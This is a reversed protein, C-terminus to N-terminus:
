WVGPGARGSGLTQIRGELHATAALLMVEARDTQSKTGRQMSPSSRLSVLCSAESGLATLKNEPSLNLDAQPLTEYAEDQKAKPQSVQGAICVVITRFVPLKTISNM